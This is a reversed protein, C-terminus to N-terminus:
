RLRDADVRLVRAYPVMDEGKLRLAVALDGGFATLVVPGVRASIDPFMGLAETDAMPVALVQTPAGAGLPVRALHLVASTEDSEPQPFCFWDGELEGVAYHVHVDRHTVVWALWGVGDATRAFSFADPFMGVGDDHCPGPCTADPGDVAITACEDGIAATGPIGVTAPPPGWAVEMGDGLQLALAVV